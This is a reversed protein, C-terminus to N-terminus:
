EGNIADRALWSFASIAIHLAANEGRLTGLKQYESARVFLYQTQAKRSDPHMIEAIRRLKAFAADTSMTRIDYIIAEELFRLRLRRFREKREGELDEERELANILVRSADESRGSDYIRQAERQAADFAFNKEEGGKVLHLVKSVGELTESIRVATETNVGQVFKDIRANGTLQIGIAAAAQTTEPATM